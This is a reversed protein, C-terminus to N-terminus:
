GRKGLAPDQSPHSEVTEERRNLLGLTFPLDSLVIGQTLRGVVRARLESKRKLVSIQLSRCVAMSAAIALQQVLHPHAAFQHCNVLPLGNRGQAPATLVIQSVVIVAGHAVRWELRHVVDAFRQSAKARQSGELGSALASPSSDRTPNRRM